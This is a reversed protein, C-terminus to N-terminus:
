KTNSLHASVTTYCVLRYINAWQWNQSLFRAVQCLEVSMSIVKLPYCKTEQFQVGNKLSENTLMQNGLIQIGSLFILQKDNHLEIIIIISCELM